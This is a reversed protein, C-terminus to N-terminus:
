ALWCCCCCCRSQPRLFPASLLRTFYVGPQLKVSFQMLTYLWATAGAQARQQQQRLRLPLRLRLWLQLQLLVRQCCHTPDRSSKCMTAHLSANGKLAARACPLAAKALVFELMAWSYGKWTHAPPAPRPPTSYHSAKCTSVKMHFVYSHTASSFPFTQM